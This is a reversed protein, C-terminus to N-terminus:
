SYLASTLVQVLPRYIPPTRSLDAGVSPWIKKNIQMLVGIHSIGFGIKGM